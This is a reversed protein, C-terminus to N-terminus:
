KVGMKVLRERERNLYWLAKDIDKLTAEGPKIGARWLYKIAAGINHAMHEIVDICEIGAPHVNYHRPHNVGRPDIEHGTTIKERSPPQQRYAPYAAWVLRCDKCTATELVATRADGSQMMGCATSTEHPTTEPAHDFHIVLEGPERKQTKCKEPFPCSEASM